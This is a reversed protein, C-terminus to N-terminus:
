RSAIGLLLILINETLEEDHACVICVKSPVPVPVNDRLGSGQEGADIVFARMAWLNGEGRTTLLNNSIYRAWYVRSFSNWVSTTRM